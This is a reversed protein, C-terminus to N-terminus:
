CSGVEPRVMARELGDIMAWLGLLLQMTSYQLGM